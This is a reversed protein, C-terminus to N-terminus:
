KTTSLFGVLGHKSIPLEWVENSKDVPQGLNKEFMSSKSGAQEEAQTFAQINSDVSRTNVIKYQLYTSKSSYSNNQENTNVEQIVIRNSDSLYPDLFSKNQFM